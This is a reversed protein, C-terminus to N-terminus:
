ARHLIADIKPAMLEAAAAHAQELPHWAASVEFRNSRSWDLFNQGAFDHLHSRVLQQLYAVADPPHWKPNVTEFLLDDMYTM